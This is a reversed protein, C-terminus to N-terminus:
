EDLSAIANSVERNSKEFLEDQPSKTPTQVNLCESRGVLKYRKILSFLSKAIKKRIVHIQPLSQPHSSLVAVFELYYNGSGRPEDSFMTCSM